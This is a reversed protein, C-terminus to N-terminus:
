ENFFIDEQWNKPNNIIYESIRQYSKEDRIINEYYNRQWLKGKFPQWDQNKVGRIYEITLSLFPQAGGNLLSQILKPKIFGQYYNLFSGILKEKHPIKIICSLTIMFLVHCKQL